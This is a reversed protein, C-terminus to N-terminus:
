HFLQTNDNWKIYRCSEFDCAVDHFKSARSAAAANPNLIFNNKMINMRRNRTTDDSPLVMDDHKGEDEPTKSTNTTAGGGSM